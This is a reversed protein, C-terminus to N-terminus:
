YNKEKINNIAGKMKLVQSKKFNYIKIFRIIFNRSIVIEKISFWYELEESFDKTIKKPEQPLVLYKAFSISLDNQITREQYLAEEFRKRM